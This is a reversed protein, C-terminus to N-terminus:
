FWGPEGPNQLPLQSTMNVLNKRNKTSGQALLAYVTAARDGQRSWPIYHLPVGNHNGGHLGDVTEARLGNTWQFWIENKSLNIQDSTWVDNSFKVSPAVNKWSWRSRLKKGVQSLRKHQHSWINSSLLDSQECARYLFQIGGRVADAIEGSLNKAVNRRKSIWNRFHSEIRHM